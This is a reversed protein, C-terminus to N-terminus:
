RWIKVRIDIRGINLAAQVQYTAIESIDYYEQLGQEVFLQEVVGQLEAISLDSLAM